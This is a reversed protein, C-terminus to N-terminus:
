STECGRTSIPTNTKGDADRRRQEVTGVDVSHSRVIPENFVVNEMLHNEDRQRFGLRANRPGVDTFRRKVASEVRRKVASEVRRKGRADYCQAVQLHAALGREAATTATQARSAVAQESQTLPTAKGALDCPLQVSM